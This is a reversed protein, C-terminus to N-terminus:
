SIDTAAKILIKVWHVKHYVGDDDMQLSDWTRLVM